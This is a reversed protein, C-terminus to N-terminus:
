EDEQERVVTSNPKIFIHMNVCTKQYITFRYSHENEICNRSLEEHLWASFAYVIACNPKQVIHAGSPQYKM